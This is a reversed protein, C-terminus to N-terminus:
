DIVSTLSCEECWRGNGVLYKLPTLTGCDICKCEIESIWKDKGACLGAIDAPILSNNSLKVFRDGESNKMITFSPNNRM